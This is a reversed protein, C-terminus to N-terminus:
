QKVIWLDDSGGGVDFGYENVEQPLNRPKVQNSASFSNVSGPTAAEKAKIIEDKTAWRYGSGFSELFFTRGNGDFGTTTSYIIKKPQFIFGSDAKSIFVSGDDNGVGAVNEQESGNNLSTSARGVAGGIYGGGGGGHQGDDGNAGGGGFGGISRGNRNYTGQGNMSNPFDNFSRGTLSGGTGLSANYELADIAHVGGSYSSDGTGNGGGAIVLPTSNKVIFSGGGGAGTTNDGSSANGNPHVTGKQGVLIKLVEGEVLDFNGRVFAGSSKYFTGGGGVGGAAGIAIITYTGTEPVTWEQIGQVNVSVKDQLNTGLYANNIEQLTPGDAGESGANNFRYIEANSPSSIVAESGFLTRNIDLAAFNGSSVMFKLYNSIESDNIRSRNIKLNGGDLPLELFHLDIPKTRRPDRALIEFSIDGTTQTWDDKVNWSVTHVVNTAIPSGIKDGTGGVWASPVIQTGGAQALIGVTANDDDTDIIEFKLDIINTGSRQSIGHIVPLPLDNSLSPGKTRYTRKYLKYKSGDFQLFDGNHLPFSVYENNSYGLSFPNLSDNSFPNHNFTNSYRLKTQVYGESTTMLYIDRGRQKQVYTGDEHFFFVHKYSSSSNNHRGKVALLGGPLFGLVQAEGSLNDIGEVWGFQNKQTGNQDFVYITDGNNSIYIDGSPGVAVGNPNTVNAEWQMPWAVGSANEELIAVATVNHEPLGVTVTPPYAYDGGYWIDFGVVRIEDAYYRRYYESSDNRKLGYRYYELKPLTLAGTPSFSISSIEALKTENYDHTNRNKTMTLNSLNTMNLDIVQKGSISTKKWALVKKDGTPLDHIAFITDNSLDVAMTHFDTSTYHVPQNILIEELVSGNRDFVRLGKSGNQDTEDFNAYLRDRKTAPDYEVHVLNTINEDLYGSFYWNDQEGAFLAHGFAWLTSLFAFTRTKQKM